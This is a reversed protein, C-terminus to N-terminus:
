FKYSFGVDIVNRQYSNARNERAYDLRLSVNETLVCTLTGSLTRLITTADEDIDPAYAYGVGFGFGPFFRGNLRATWGSVSDGNVKQVYLMRSALEWNEAFIVTPGSSFLRNELSRYWSPQFSFFWWVPFLADQENILRGNIEMKLRFVPKYVADPSGAVSFGAYVNQEFRREAGIEYLSDPSDHQHFREGRAHIVLRKEDFARAIQVYGHHWNPNPSDRFVSLGYGVDARWLGQSSEARRKSTKVLGERAEEYDPYRAVIQAYDNEAEELHGQYDHWRARLLLHDPDDSYAALLADIRSLAGKFDNKWLLIQARAYQAQTDKPNKEEYESLTTEAKDYNREAAFRLANKVADDRAQQARAFDPSTVYFFLLCACIAKLIGLM